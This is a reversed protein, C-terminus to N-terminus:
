RSAAAALAHLRECLHAVVTDARVREHVARVVHVFGSGVARPRRHVPPVAVEGLERELPLQRVQASSSCFSIKGSSFGTMSPSTSTGAAVLVLVHDDDPRGLLAELLEDAVVLDADVLQEAVHLEAVQRVVLHHAAELQEAGLDHKGFEGLPAM